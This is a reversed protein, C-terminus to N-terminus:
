GCIGGYSAVVVVVVEGAFNVLLSTDEVLSAVGDFLSVLVTVAAFIIEKLCLFSALSFLEESHTGPQALNGLRVVVVGDVVGLGVARVSKLVNVAVSASIASLVNEEVTVISRDVHCSGETNDKVRLSVGLLEETATLDFVGGLLDGVITIMVSVIDHSDSHGRVSAGSNRSLDARSRSHEGPTGLSSL